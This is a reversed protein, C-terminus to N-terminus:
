RASCCRPWCRCRCRASPISIAAPAAARWCHTSRRRKAARCRSTIARCRSCWRRHRGLRQRLGAATDLGQRRMDEVSDVAQWRAHRALAALPWWQSRRLAEDRLQAGGRETPRDVAPGAVVLALMAPCADAPPECWRHASLEGLLQREEADVPLPQDLHAALAVWSIQSDMEAHGALMARLDLTIAERPEFMLSACRRLRMPNRGEAACGAYCCRGLAALKLSTRLAAEIAPQRPRYSFKLRRVIGMLVMRREAASALVRSSWRIPLSSKRLWKVRAPWPEPRSRAPRHPRRFRSCSSRCGPKPRPASGPAHCGAPGGGTDTAAIVTTNQKSAPLTPSRMSPQGTMLARRGRGAIGVHVRRANLPQWVQM